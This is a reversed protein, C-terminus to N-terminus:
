EKMFVLITFTNGVVGGFQIRPTPIVEELKFGVGFDRVLEEQTWNCSTIVFHGKDSLVKDLTEIYKLRKGKADEPNLSIADYTGKTWVFKMDERCCNLPIATSFILKKSNREQRGSRPWRELSNLPPLPIISESCKQIVMRASTFPLSETEADSTWFPFM